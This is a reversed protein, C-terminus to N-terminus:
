CVRISLKCNSRMADVIQVPEQGNIYWVPPQIIKNPLLAYNSIIFEEGKKPHEMRNRHNVIDKISPENEDIFKFLYSKEGLLKKLIDRMKDFRANDVNEQFIINFFETLTQAYRKTNALFTSVRDELDIIQPFPNYIQNREVSLDNANIRTNIVNVESAMELSMRECILLLEKCEYLKQTILERNISQPLFKIFETSQVMLRAIIKNSCGVNDKDKVVWGMNPDTVESDLVEPSQIHFTKDVKYVEEFNSCQCIAIIGGTGGKMQLSASQFRPAKPSVGKFLDSM